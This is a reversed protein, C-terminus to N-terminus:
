EDFTQLLCAVCPQWQDRNMPSELDEDLIMEVIQEGRANPQNSVWATRRRDCRREGVTALSDEERNSGLTAPVVELQPEEFGVAKTAHTQAGSGQAHVRRAGCEEGDHM